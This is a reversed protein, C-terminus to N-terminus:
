TLADGDGGLRIILDRHVVAMPGPLIILHAWTVGLPKVIRRHRAEIDAVNRAIYDPVAQM